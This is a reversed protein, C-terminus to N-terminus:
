RSLRYKWSTRPSLGSAAPTRMRGISRAVSAHPGRLPRSESLYPWTGKVVVPNATMLRERYRREVVSAEVGYECRATYMTRNPAPSPNKADGFMLEIIPETGASGRPIADPNRAAPAHGRWLGRDGCGGVQSTALLRNNDSETIGRRRRHCTFPDGEIDEGPRSSEEASGARERSNLGDSASSRAIAKPEGPSPGRAHRSFPSACRNDRTSPKSRSRAHGESRPAR